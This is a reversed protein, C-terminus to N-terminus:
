SICEKRGKYENIMQGIKEHMDHFEKKLAPRAEIIPTGQAYLEAIRKDFPIRMLIEIHESACYDETENDGLTSRNIVVGHPIALKRVVDIALKLDHLGFPTPETVLVCFDTNKMASIVPCSTGPPADIIVTKQTDIHKKVQRIVPPAMAAGIDLTGHAFPICRGRGVEVNGIEKPVEKIAGEPCVYTCAGCGHCLEHFTLVTDSIIAIAKYFCAEKCKGCATCKEKDVEPVLICVPEKVDIVPNMFIHANPEEVDCDLLQTNEVSLAFSTAVTTKGTGGKGSAISIIM